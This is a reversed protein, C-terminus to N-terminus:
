DYPQVKDNNRWQVTNKAAQHMDETWHQDWLPWGDEGDVDDPNKRITALVKDTIKFRDLSDLVATRPHGQVQSFVLLERWFWQLARDLHSASQFILKGDKDKIDVETEIDDFDAESDCKEIAKATECCHIISKQVIDVQAGHEMMASWLDPLWDAIAGCAEAMYYGEQDWGDANRCSKRLAALKKALIRKRNAFNVVQAAQAVATSSGDVHQPKAPRTLTTGTHPKRGKTTPM